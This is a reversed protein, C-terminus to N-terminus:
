ALRGAPTGDQGAGGRAGSVRFLIRRTSNSNRRAREIRDIGLVRAQDAVVEGEVIRPRNDAVEKGLGRVLDIEDTLEVRVGLECRIM